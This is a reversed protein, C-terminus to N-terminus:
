QQGNETAFHDRNKATADLNRRRKRCALTESERKLCPDGRFKYFHPKM